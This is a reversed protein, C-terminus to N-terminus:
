FLIKSSNRFYQSGNYFIPSKGCTQLKQTSNENNLDSHQILATCYLVSRTCEPNAPSSPVTPIQGQLKKVIKERIMEKPYYKFTKRLLLKVWGFKCLNRWGQVHCLKTKSLSSRGHRLSPFCLRPSQRFVITVLKSAVVSLDHPNSAVGKALTIYFLDHKTKEKFM